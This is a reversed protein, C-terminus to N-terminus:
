RETEQPPSLASPAHKAAERLLTAAQVHGMGEVFDAEWEYHERTFQWTQRPGQQELTARLEDREARAIALEKSAIAYLEEWRTDTM